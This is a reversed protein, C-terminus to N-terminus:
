VSEIHLIESMSILQNFELGKRDLMKCNRWQSITALQHATKNINTTTRSRDRAPLQHERPARAQEM